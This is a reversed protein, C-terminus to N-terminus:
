LLSLSLPLSFPVSSFFPPSFSLALSLALFLATGTFGLEALTECSRQVQEICPSFSCVKGRSVLIRKCSPLVQSLPLSTLALFSLPDPLSLPSFLSLSLYRPLSDFLSFSLPLSIIFVCWGPSPFTSSSLMWEVGSILFDVRASTSTVARFSLPSATTPLIRETFHSFTLALLTLSLFPSLLCPSCAVHAM